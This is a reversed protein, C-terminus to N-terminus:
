GWVGRGRPGRSLCLTRRSSLWASTTGAWPVRAQRCPPGGRSAQAGPLPPPPQLNALGERLQPAHTEWLCTQPVLPVGALRDPPGGSSLGASVAGLAVEDVSVCRCVRTLFHWPPAALRVSLSLPAGPGGAGRGSPPPGPPASGSRSFSGAPVRPWLWNVLAWKATGRARPNEHM